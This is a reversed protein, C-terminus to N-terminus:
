VQVWHLISGRTARDGSRSEGQEQEPRNRATRAPVGASFAVLFFQGVRTLVPVFM